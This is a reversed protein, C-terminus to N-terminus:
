HSSDLSYWCSQTLINKLFRQKKTSQFFTAEANSPNFQTDWFSFNYIKPTIHKVPHTVVIM